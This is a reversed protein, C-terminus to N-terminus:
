SLDDGFHAIFEANLGAITPGCVMYGDADDNPDWIIFRGRGRCDRGYRAVHEPPAERLFKAVADLRYGNREIAPHIHSVHDM